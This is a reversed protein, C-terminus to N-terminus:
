LSKGWYVVSANRQYAYETMTLRKDVLKKSFLFPLESNWRSEPKDHMVVRWRIFSMRGSTEDSLIDYFNDPFNFTISQKVADLIEKSSPNKKTLYSTSLLFM